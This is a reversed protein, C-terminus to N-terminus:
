FDWDQMSRRHLLICTDGPFSEQMMAKTGRFVLQFTPYIVRAVVSTHQPSSFSFSQPKGEKWLFVECRSRGVM